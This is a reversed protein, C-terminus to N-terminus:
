DNALRELNAQLIKKDQATLFLPVGMSNQSERPNDNQQYFGCDECYIALWYNADGYPKPPLGPLNEELTDLDFRNIQSLDFSNVNKVIDNSNSYRQYILYYFTSNEIKIESWSSYYNNSYTFARFGESIETITTKLAEAHSIDSPQGKLGFALLVFFLFSLRDKM